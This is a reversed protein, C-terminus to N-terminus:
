FCLVIFAETAESSTAWLSTFQGWHHWETATNCQPYQLRWTKILFFAHCQFFRCRQNQQTLKQDNTKLSDIILGLTAMNCQPYHLCFNQLAAWRDLMVSAQLWRPCNRFLHDCSICCLWLYQRKWEVCEEEKEFGPAWMVWLAVQGCLSM